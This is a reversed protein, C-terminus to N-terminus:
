NMGKQSKLIEIEAELKDRSKKIELLLSASKILEDYKKMTKRTPMIPKWYYENGIPIDIEKFLNCVFKLISQKQQMGSLKQSTRLFVCPTTKKDAHYYIGYAEEEKKTLRKSLLNQLSSFSKKVDHEGNQNQNYANLIYRHLHSQFKTDKKFVHPVNTIKHSIQEDENKIKKDKKQNKNLLLLNNYLNTIGNSSMYQQVSQTTQPYDTLSLLNAREKLMKKGSIEFRRGELILAEEEAIEEPTRKFLNEMYKKREIEKTKSFSKLLNLFEPDVNLDTEFTRYCIYYFHEKLDDQTRYNYLYKDYIIPWKLEFANCLDFLHQTEEYSWENDEDEEINDNSENIKTNKKETTEEIVSQNLEKKIEVDKLKEKEKYLKSAENQNKKIIEKKEKMFKKFVDIEILKPLDIKVNFKEFIYIEEGKKQNLEKSGRVWHYLQVKYKKNADTYLVFPVRSWPSPKFNKKKKIENLGSSAISTTPMNPGLLNYLERAMGTQRVTGKDNVKSKKKRSDSNNRQVNLIDLVDSTSM